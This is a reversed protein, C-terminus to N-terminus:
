SLAEAVAHGRPTLAFCVAGHWRGSDVFEGVLGHDFLAHLTNTSTIPMDNAIFHCEGPFTPLNWTSDLWSRSALGDGHLLRRMVQQQRKTLYYM